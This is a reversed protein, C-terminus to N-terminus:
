FLAGVGLKETASIEIGDADQGCGLVRTFEQLETAVSGDETVASRLTSMLLREGVLRCDAIPLRCHILGAASEDIAKESSRLIGVVPGVEPGVEQTRVRVAHSDFAHEHEVLPQTFAKVLVFGVILEHTLDQQGFTRVMAVTGRNN